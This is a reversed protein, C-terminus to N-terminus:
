EDTADEGAEEAIAQMAQDISIVKKEEPQEGLRYEEKLKALDEQSSAPRDDGQYFSAVKHALAFRDWAPLNNFSRMQTGDLGESLVRFINAIEPGKKWNQLNRFDRAGQVLGGQGEKGHCSECYTSYLKDADREQIEQSNPDMAVELDVPKNKDAIKQELWDDFEDESTVEMVTLMKSHDKGCYEACFVNFTGEREPRIWMHNDRGPVCDEKVRFAPLYFSHVVDGPPASLNLRIAKGVPVFLRDSSIGSEPYIFTWFWSRAEVNVV